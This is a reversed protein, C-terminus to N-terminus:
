SNLFFIMTLEKKLFSDIFPCMVLCIFLFEEKIDLKYM